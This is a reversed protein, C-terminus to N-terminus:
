KKSKCNDFHYRKMARCGGEKNCHPCSVIKHKIGIHSISMNRKAEETHKFGLCGKNGKKAKSMRERTINNSEESRSSWYDGGDLGNEAVLNAWKKSEVINSLKSFALCYKICEDEEDSDFVNVVTTKIESNHFKIHRIWRKGSGKYKNIDDRCRKGFYRLGCHECTKVYITTKQFVM